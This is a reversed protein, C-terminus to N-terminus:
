QLLTAPGHPGAARALRADFTPLRCDRAEALAVYAADCATVTARLTWIGPLLDVHGLRALPLAALDERAEAARAASLEGLRQWRRLAPAVAIDILHPAHLTEGRAFLVADAVRGRATKLLVELLVSAAVVIL